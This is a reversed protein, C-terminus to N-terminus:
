APAAPLALQGELDSREGAILQAVLRGTVPALAIGDGGHAGAVVLGAPDPCRAVIPRKERSAPRLGVGHERIALRALAPFFRGFEELLARRARDTPTLDFASEERTAGIRIAGSRDQGIALGVSFPMPGPGAAFKAMLVGPSLVRGPLSVPAPETVLTEGKELRVPVRVGLRAALPEVWPGAALVVHECEVAGYPTVVACVRGNSVSVGEAPVRPSIGAGLRSAAAAFVQSAERGPVSADDPAYSAGRVGSALQPFRRRLDTEDVMAVRVGQDTLWALRERVFREEEPTRYVVYSGIVDYPAGIDRRLEEYLRMSQQTLTILLPSSKTHCLVGSGSVAVTAAGIEGKELLVVRRGARALYYASAAGIIGGGIVVVDATRPVTM